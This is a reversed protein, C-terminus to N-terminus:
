SNSSKSQKTIEQILRESTENSAKLARIEEDDSMLLYAAYLLFGIKGFAWAEVLRDHWSHWGNPESHAYDLLILIGMVGLGIAVKIRVSLKV